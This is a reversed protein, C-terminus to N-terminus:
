RQLQRNFDVVIDRRVERLKKLGEKFHGMAEFKAMPNISEAFYADLLTHIEERFNELREGNSADIYIYGEEAAEMLNYIAENLREIKIYLRNSDRDEATKGGEEQPLVPDVEPFFRPVASLKFLVTGMLVSIKEMSEMRRKHTNAHAIEKLRMEFKHGELRWAYWAAIVVGFAQVVAAFTKWSDNTTGAWMQRLWNIDM